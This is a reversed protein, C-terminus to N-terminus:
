SKQKYVFSLVTHSISPFYKKWKKVLLRGSTAAPNMGNKSVQDCNNLSQDNM